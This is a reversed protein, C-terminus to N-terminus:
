EALLHEAAETLHWRTLRGVRESTLLGAAQTRSLAQRTTGQDIGFRDLLAIFTSTWAVGGDPLVFEGMVTLLLRRATAAGMAHRRLAVHAHATRSSASSREPALTTARPTRPSVRRSSLHM